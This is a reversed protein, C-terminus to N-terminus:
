SWRNIAAHSLLNEGSILDQAPDAGAAVGGLDALCEGFQEVLPDGTSGRLHQAGLPEGVKLEDRHATVPPALDKRVGVDVDDDEVTVREAVVEGSLRKRAEFPRSGAEALPDLAHQQLELVGAESERSADSRDGLVQREDAAVDGDGGGREVAAENGAGVLDHRLGAEGGEGGDAVAERAAGVADAGEDFFSEVGAVLLEATRGEHQLRLKLHAAASEAVTVGDSPGRLDAEAGAVETRECAVAADARGICLSEFLGEGEHCADPQHEM